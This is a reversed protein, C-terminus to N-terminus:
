TSLFDMSPDVEQAREIILETYIKSMKKRDNNNELNISKIKHNLRKRQINNSLFIRGPTEKKFKM